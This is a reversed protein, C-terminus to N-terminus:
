KEDLEEWKYGFNVFDLHYIEEVIKRTNSTYHSSYHGKSHIGRTRRHDQHLIYQKLTEENVGIKDKIKLMDHYLNEQKALYDVLLKEEDYLLSSQPVFHPDKIWDSNKLDECFEIFNSYQNMNSPWPHKGDSNERHWENKFESYGSLLRDFPNRTIAFKFYSSCQPLHELIQKAGMHHIKPEPDSRQSGVLDHSDKFMITVTTGASKPIHVFLFNYKISAFM